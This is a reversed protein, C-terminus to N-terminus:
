SYKNYLLHEASLKLEAVPRNDADMVLSGVVQLPDSLGKKRSLEELQRFTLLQSKNGLRESTIQYYLPQFTTYAYLNGDEDEWCKYPLYTQEVKAWVLKRTYGLRNAQRFLSRREHQSTGPILGEVSRSIGRPIIPAALFYRIMRGFGSLEHHQM